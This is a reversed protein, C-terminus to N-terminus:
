RVIVYQEEWYEENEGWTAHVVLRVRSDPPAGLRPIIVTYDGTEADALPMALAARPEQGMVTVTATVTADEIPAGATDELRLNAENPGDKWTLM